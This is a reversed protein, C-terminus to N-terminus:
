KALMHVELGEYIVQQADSNLGNIMAKAVDRVHIPKYKKFPPIKTALKLLPEGIKEGIRMEKRDGLLLSPRVIVLKEFGLKQVKNDLKGKMNLYFNKTSQTAGLSSCLAYSLVGNKQAYKAVDLQYEYDVEYQAEKSGAAKLTTGLASFLEDGIILHKWIRMEHFNIVHEELKEHTVGTSRRHFVKVLAYRDDSLLQQLLQSGVLGTAGLVIATKQTGSM